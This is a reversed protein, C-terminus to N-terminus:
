ESLRNLAAKIDGELKHIQDIKGEIRQISITNNQSREYTTQWTAVLASISMLATASTVTLWKWNQMIKVSGTSDTAVTAGRGGSSYVVSKPERREATVIIHSVDRERTVLLFLKTFVVGNNKRCFSTALVAQDRKSALLENTLERWTSRDEPPLLEVLEIKRLESVTYGTLEEFSHNCEAVLGDAGVSSVGTPMKQIIEECNRM